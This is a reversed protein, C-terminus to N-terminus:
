LVYTLGALSFIGKLVLGFVSGIVSVPSSFDLLIIILLLFPGRTELFFRLHNYKPKDLVAHLLKSGDLPPIPIFNFVGLLVNIMVGMLLFVVLLNSMPLGFVELVLKLLFVFLTAQLFNSVPGALAVMTPGWKRYKLNYPNFPVPKAWGIIPLPPGGLAIPLLGILPVIVTGIPDIHAKPNLTLRGMRRATDDGLLHGVFAHSFEHVSLSILFALAMVIVVAIGSM